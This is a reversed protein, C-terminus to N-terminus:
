TSWKLSCLSSGPRPVLNFERVNTIFASPSRWPSLSQYPPNNFVVVFYHSSSLPKWQPFAMILDNNTQKKKLLSLTLNLSSSKHTFESVLV